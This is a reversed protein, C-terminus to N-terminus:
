IDDPTPETTGGNKERVYDTVMKKLRVQFSMLAHTTKDHEYEIDILDDKARELSQLAAYLNPNRKIEDRYITYEEGDVDVTITEIDTM